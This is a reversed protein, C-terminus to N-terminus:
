KMVGEVVVSCLEASSQATTKAKQINDSLGSATHLWLSDNESM